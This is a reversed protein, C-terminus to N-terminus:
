GLLRRLMVGTILSTVAAMLLGGAVGVAVILSLPQGPQWLPMAFGLFVGLGVLWGIATAWIWHGARAVHRRLILWQATGISALLVLAGIALAVVVLPVPWADISLASPALGIAYALVAAGATAAIWRRRPLGPLARRLVAAQGSGLMAGEAAGAALLAPMSVAPRLTATLAGVCAPVAFGVFEAVTVTAFWARVLSRGRLPQTAPLPRDLTITVLTADDAVAVRPFTARYARVAREDAAVEGTAPCWHGDILVDVLARDTFHRWWRKGAPRGVLVVLRDRDHAAQVPVTVMSGSRATYRLATMTAGLIPRARSGLLWLVFRNAPPVRHQRDAHRVTVAQGSARMTM